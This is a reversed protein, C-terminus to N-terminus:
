RGLNARRKANDGGRVQPPHALILPFIWHGSAGAVNEDVDQAILSDGV